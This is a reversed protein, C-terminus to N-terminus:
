VYLFFPCFFSSFSSDDSGLGSPHWLTEEVEEQSPGRTASQKEEEEGEEKLELILGM